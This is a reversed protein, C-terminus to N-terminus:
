QMVAEDVEGWVQGYAVGSIRPTENNVPAKHSVFNCSATVIAIM